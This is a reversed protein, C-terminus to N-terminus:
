EKTAFDYIAKDYVLWGKWGPHSSDVFFYDTYEYEQSSVYDVGYQECLAVVPGYYNQARSEATWASNDWFDGHVGQLVILPEIGLENCAKLFIEFDTIERDNWPQDKYLASSEAIGDLYEKISGDKVYRDAVTYENTSRKKAQKMSKKELKGWNPETATEPDKPIVKEGKDLKGIQVSAAYKLRAVRLRDGLAVDLAHTPRSYPLYPSTLAYNLDYETLRENVQLKLENSINPNEMFAQYAGPSFTAAMNGAHGQYEMFWTPGLFLVVKNNPIQEDLAGMEMTHWLSLCYGRGIMMTDFGYNNKRFVRYPHDKCIGPSFESSGFMILPHDDAEVRAQLDKEVFSFCKLRTLSAYTWYPAKEIEADQEMTPTILFYSVGVLAILCSALVSILRKM